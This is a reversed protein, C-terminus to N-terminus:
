STFFDQKAFASNIKKIAEDNTIHGLNWNLVVEAVDNLIFTVKEQFKNEKIVRAM